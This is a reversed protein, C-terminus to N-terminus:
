FTKKFFSFGLLQHTLRFLCMGSLCLFALGKPASVFFVENPPAHIKIYYILTKVDKKLNYKNWFSKKDIISYDNFIRNKEIDFLFM